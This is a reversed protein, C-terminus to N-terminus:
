AKTINVVFAKSEPIRTNCDGIVPTIVNGSDGTCCGSYGFHWIVGVQHVKKGGITLPEFRRTVCAKVTISGRISSVVVDDGNEIDNDAALEENMEVFPEPMLECLGPLNRTM